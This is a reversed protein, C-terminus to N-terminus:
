YVRLEAAAKWFNLPFTQGVLICILGDSAENTTAAQSIAM